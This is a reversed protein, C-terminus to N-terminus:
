LDVTWGARTMARQLDAMFRRTADIGSSRPWRQGTFHRGLADLLADRETANLGGDPAADTYYVNLRRVLKPDAEVVVRLAINSPPTM